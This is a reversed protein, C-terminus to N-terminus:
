ANNVEVGDMKAGCNPCYNYMRYGVNGCCSCSFSVEYLDGLKSLKMLTTM